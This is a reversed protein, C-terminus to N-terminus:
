RGSMTGQSSKRISDALSDGSYVSVSHKDCNNKEVIHSGTTSSTDCQQTASATAAPHPQMGSCGALALVILFSPAAIRM